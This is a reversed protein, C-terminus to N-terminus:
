ASAAFREPRFPALMEVRAIGATAAALGVIVAYVIRLWLGKALAWLRSEFHM